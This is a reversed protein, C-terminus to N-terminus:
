KRQEKGFFARVLEGVRPAGDGKFGEASRKSMETLGKRDAMLAEIEGALREKSLERDFIVRAAGQDELLRANKTQHDGPANPLPVLISAKGFYGLEALTGSGARSVILDSSALARYLESDFEAYIYKVTSDSAMLRSARAKFQPFDRSGIVHYIVIDLDRRSQWWEALDTIAENISHSGLSGGFASVLFSGKSIARDARFSSSDPTRGALNSIEPRLLVGIIEANKIGSSESSVLVKTAIKSALRNALGAVANTEVVVVPIRMIKATVIPPFSFYGGFGILVRPRSKRALILLEITAIILLWLALLNSLSLKRVLGRVQLQMLEYGYPTVIDLELPRTSGIFGVEERDVGTKVLAEAVGLAPLLHGATGGAAVWVTKNFQWRAM